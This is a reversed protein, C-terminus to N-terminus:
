TTCHADIHGNHGSRTFLVRGEKCGPCVLSGRSTPQGKKWPGGIHDVIAQRVKATRTLLQTIVPDDIRRAMVM